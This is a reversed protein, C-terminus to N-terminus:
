QLRLTAEGVIGPTYDFGHISARVVESPSKEREFADPARALANTVRQFLRSQPFVDPSGQFPDVKGKKLWGRLHSPTRGNWDCSDYLVSSFLTTQITARPNLIFRQLFTSSRLRQKFAVCHGPLWYEPQDRVHCPKGQPQDIYAVGTHCAASWERLRHGHPKCNQAMRAQDFCEMGLHQLPSRYVPIWRRLNATITPHPPDHPLDHPMWAM